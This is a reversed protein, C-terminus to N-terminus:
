GEKYYVVEPKEESLQFSVNDGKYGLKDTVYNNIGGYEEIQIVPVEHVHIQPDGTRMVMVFM